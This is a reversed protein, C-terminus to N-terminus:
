KIGGVAFEAAAAAFASNLRTPATPEFTGLHRGSTDFNELRLVSPDSRIVWLTDDAPDLSIGKLTAAPFAVPTALRRGGGRLHM